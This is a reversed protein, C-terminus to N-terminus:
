EPPFLNPYDRRMADLVQNNREVIRGYVDIFALDDKIDDFNGYIDTTLGLADLLSVDRYGVDHMQNLYEVARAKDGLGAHAVALQLHGVNTAGPPQSDYFEILKGYLEQSLREQGLLEAHGAATLYNWSSWIEVPWDKVDKRGQSVYGIDQALADETFSRWAVMDEAQWAQRAKRGPVYALNRRAQGDEPDRAYWDEIHKIWGAIDNKQTLMQAKRWLVATNFADVQEARGTWYEATQWDGLQLFVDQILFVMTTFHTPDITLAASYYKASGAVDRMWVHATGAQWQIDARDGGVELSQAVYDRAANLEGDIVAAFARAMISEANLPNRRYSHVFQVRADAARGQLMLSGGYNQLLEADNPNVALAKLFYPESEAFRQTRFSALYRAMAWNTLWSNPDLSQAKEAAALAQGLPDRLDSGALQSQSLVLSLGAWADAYDPDLRLADRFRAISQQNQRIDFFNGLERAELFLQYAALNETPRSEDAGTFQVKLADAVQRAVEDQVAFIDDLDRDFNNAWIHKDNDAQILQVSIRVRDGSRRVSGEMVYSVNLERGIQSIPPKNDAYALTSTRSTVILEPIQSIHNLIDEHIGAAFFANEESSSLNDFPLVAISAELVVPEAAAVLDRGAAVTEAASPIVTDPAVFRELYMYGVGLAIVVIAFDVIRAPSVRALEEKTL